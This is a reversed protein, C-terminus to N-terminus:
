SSISTTMLNLFNLIIKSMLIDYWILNRSKFGQFVFSLFIFLLIFGLFDVDQVFWNNEVKRGRQTSILKKNASAPRPPAHMSKKM